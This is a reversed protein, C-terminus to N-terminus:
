SNAQVHHVEKAISVPIDTEAEARPLGHTFSPFVPREADSVLNLPLTVTFTTGVGVESQVTIKGDMLRTLKHAIALGLGTGGHRRTTSADAQRFEDFIYAQAAAPIGIGTDDVQIAWTAGGHVMRLTVRGKDTFKIANSLLNIGIKSLADEDGMIVEPMKPDIDMTLTLNKNDALIGMEQEWREALAAPAFPESVIELRGAEIRSLDLFDNVLGLLRRNNLRIRGVMHAADQPLEFGGIGMLMIGTFGEIANLPTRL